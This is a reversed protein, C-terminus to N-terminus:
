LLQWLELVKEEAFKAILISVVTPYIWDKMSKVNWARPEFGCWWPMNARRGGYNQDINRYEAQTIERGIFFASAFAAGIWLGFPSLLLQMIIALIVHSM